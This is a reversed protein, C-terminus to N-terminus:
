LSLSCQLLLACLCCPSSLAQKYPMTAEQIYGNSISVTCSSTFVLVRKRTMTISVCSLKKLLPFRLRMMRNYLPTKLTFFCFGVSIGELFLLLLFSCVYAIYLEWIFLSPLSPTNTCQVHARYAHKVSAREVCLCLACEDYCADALWVCACVTM